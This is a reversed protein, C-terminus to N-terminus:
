RMVVGSNHKPKKLLTFLGISILVFAVGVFFGLLTMDACSVSNEHLYYISALSTIYSLLFTIAHRPSLKSM